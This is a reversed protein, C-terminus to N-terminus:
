ESLYLAGRKMANIIPTNSELQEEGLNELWNGDLANFVDFTNTDPFYIIRKSSRFGGKLQIFFEPTPVEENYTAAQKLAELSEIRKM